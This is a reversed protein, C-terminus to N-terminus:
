AQIPHGYDTPVDMFHPYYTGDTFCINFNEYNEEYNVIIVFDIDFMLFTIDFSAVCESFRVYISSVYKWSISYGKLAKYQLKLWM